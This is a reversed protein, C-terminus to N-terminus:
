SAQLSYMGRETMKQNQVSKGEKKKEKGNKCEMKVM